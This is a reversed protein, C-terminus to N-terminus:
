LNGGLASMLGKTKDMTEQYESLPDSDVVIGGGGHFFLQKNALTMTRIAISTCMSGNFGIYGISGSYVGRRVPELEEIIEMARIKPAGTISGGPFCQQLLDVPGYQEKLEGQIISVLHWVTPHRELKWLDTVVVSGIECVKGLDSRMLDVIMVNEARDKESNMLEIALKKDLVPDENTPRTGKIPRTEVYNANLSLFLEPSASLICLDPLNLYASFPAPNTYRLKLYLEWSDGEYSTTFRQSINAQYIDGAHLYDKVKKITSVYDDISFNSKFTKNLNKSASSNILNINFKQIRDMVWEQREYHNILPNSTTTSLRILDDHHDQILVWDYFGVWMESYDYDDLAIVPLKEVMRGLDYSWYGIAGGTFPKNEEFFDDHYESLLQNLIEWPNGSINDVVGNRTISIQDGKSQIILFPDASLYSYRSVDDSRQASDLFVCSSIDVFCPMISLLSQIESLTQLYVAL